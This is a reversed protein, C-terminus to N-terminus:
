ENIGMVGKFIVGSRMAQDAWSLRADLESKEEFFGAKEFSSVNVLKWSDMPSDLFNLHKVSIPYFFDSESDVLSFLKQHLNVKKYKSGNQLILLWKNEAQRVGRNLLSFYSSSRSKITRCQVDFQKQLEKDKSPPLVALANSLDPKLYYKMWSLTHKLKRLNLDPCLIVIGFDLNVREPPKKGYM